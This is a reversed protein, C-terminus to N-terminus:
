RPMNGQLFDQGIESLAEQVRAKNGKVANLREWIEKQTALTHTGNGNPALTLNYLTDGRKAAEEAAEHALEDTGFEEVSFRPIEENELIEHSKGIYWAQQQQTNWNPDPADFDRVKKGTAADIIDDYQKPIRNQVIHHGHIRVEEVGFQKALRKRAAEFEARKTADKTHKTLIDCWGINHVLVSAEGVAFNHQHEVTLNSVLMETVPIVDVRSVVSKHGDITHFCDGIKLHQSNVWRGCVHNGFSDDTLHAVVPRSELDHGSVIWFPHNATAEITGETTAIRVLEGTYRNQHTQLVKNATWHKGSADLSMVRDGIALQGIQRKGDPTAVLTDPHFCFKDITEEIVRAGREITVAADDFKNLLKRLEGGERSIEALKRLVPAAADGFRNTAKAFDSLKDAIRAFKAGKTVASATGATFLIEAVTQAVEWTIAGEIRGRTEPPLERLEKTLLVAMSMFAAAVQQHKGGLQQLEEPTGQSLVRYHEFAQEGLETGAANLVKFILQVAEQVNRELQRESAFDYGLVKEAVVRHIPSVYWMFKYASWGTKVLSGIGEINGWLGDVFFGKVFGSSYDIPHLYKNADAKLINIGIEFAQDLFKANDQKQVGKLYNSLKEIPTLETRATGGPKQTLTTTGPRDAVQVILRSAVDASTEGPAVRLTLEQQAAPGIAEVIAQITSPSFQGVGGRRTLSQVSLTEVETVFEVAPREAVEALSTEGFAGWYEGADPSIGELIAAIESNNSTTGDTIPTAPSATIMNELIDPSAGVFMASNGALSYRDTPPAIDRVDDALSEVDWFGAPFQETPQILEVSSASNVWTTALWPTSDWWYGIGYYAWSGWYWGYGYYLSTSDVKPVTVYYRGNSAAAINYENSLDAPTSLDPLDTRYIGTAGLAAISSSQASAQTWDATVVSQRYLGSANTYGTKWFVDANTEATEAAAQATAQDIMRAKSASSDSVVRQARAAYDDAEYSAWPSPNNSAMNAAAAAFTNAEYQRYVTDINAWTTTSQLYASTEENRYTKEASTKANALAVDAAITNLSADRDITAFDLFKDAQASGEAGFWTLQATRRASELGSDATKIDADRVSASQHYVYDKKAKAVAVDHNYQALAIADAYAQAPDALQGFYDAISQARGQTTAQNVGAATLSHNKEATAITQERTVYGNALRGSYTTEANNRDSALNMYDTTVSNWWDRRAIAAAVLYDTWPLALDSDISTHATVRANEQATWLAIDASALSTRQANRAAAEVVWFNGEATAKTYDRTEAALAVQTDHTNELTATDQAYIREADAESTTYAKRNLTEANQWNKKATADASAQAFVADAVAKEKKRDREEQDVDNVRDIHFQKEATATDIANQKENGAIATEYTSTNQASNLRRANDLAVLASERTNTSAIAGLAELRDQEAVAKAFIEDAQARTVNRNGRAAAIDYALQGDATAKATAHTVYAPSVNDIWNAKALAYSAQYILQPSGSASAMSALASAQADSDSQQYTAEASAIASAQNVDATEELNRFNVGANEEDYTKARDATAVADALM